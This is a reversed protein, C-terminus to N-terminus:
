APEIRPADPAPHSRQVPLPQRYPYTSLFSLPFRCSVAIEDGCAPPRSSLAVTRAAHHALMLGECRLTRCLVHASPPPAARVSLYVPLCASLCPPRESIPSSQGTQLLLLALLM